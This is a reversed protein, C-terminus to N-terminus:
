GNAFAYSHDDIYQPEIEGDVPEIPIARRSYGAAEILEMLEERSVGRHVEVVLKPRHLKLLEIMGRLAEIEMGQVDIKVGDIQQRSGCIQPWLWDLRAVLITEPWGRNQITSDVMGRVTPLQDSKLTEPNGLAMPIITLQSFHNLLRTQAVHGATSLMPEFAVM